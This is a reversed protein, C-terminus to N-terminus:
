GQSNEGELSRRALPLALRWAVMTIALGAYADIAYHWGLHVSGFGILVAFVISLWRLMLGLRWCGFAVLSAIAVHMSPMASITAFSPVSRLATWLQEQLELTKITIRGDVAKLFAFHAAYPDSGLGLRGFYVPGASAFLNALLTGGIGWILLLAFLYRQRHLSRRRQFAAAFCSAFLVSFWFLYNWNIAATVWDSGLLPQLLEHPYFGFHVARDLDAFTRDWQFGFLRPVLHKWMTFGMVLLFIFGMGHLGNALRAPDLVNGKIWGYLAFAPSAPRELLMMRVFKVLFGVTCVYTAALGVYKFVFASPSLPLDHGSLLAACYGSIFVLAGGVHLPMHSRTGAKFESSLRRFFAAAAHMNGALATKGIGGEM